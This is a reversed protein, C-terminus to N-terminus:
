KKRPGATAGWKEFKLIAVTSVRSLLAIVCNQAPVSGFLLNLTTIETINPM